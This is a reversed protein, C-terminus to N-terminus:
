LVGLYIAFFHCITGGLVFFHWISHMYRVNSGLSYFVVGVTYVVGGILLLAISGLVFYKEKHLFDAVVGVLPQTAFALFDYIVAYLGATEANVGLSSNVLVSISIYDVLFHLVTATLVSPKFDHKYISFLKRM